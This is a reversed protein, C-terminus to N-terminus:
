IWCYCLQKMLMRKIPAIAIVMCNEFPELTLQYTTSKEGMDNPDEKIKENRFIEYIENGVRLIVKLWM